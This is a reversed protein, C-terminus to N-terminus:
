CAVAKSETSQVHAQNARGSPDTNSQWKPIWKRVTQAAHNQPFHQHFLTRYFFAEKSTPTNYPFLTAAQEMGQDSVQANAYDIM